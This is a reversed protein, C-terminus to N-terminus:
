VEPLEVELQEKLQAIEQQYNLERRDSEEQSALLEEMNQRLEEEQARMAESNEKLETVLQNTRENTRTNSISSALTEALRELFELQFEEFNYFSAIELVGLIQENYRLPLVLAATPNASGLGSTINIFEQPIDTLYIRAGEVWAQGILGENPLVRDNLHRNRNWAYCGVMEMSPENEKSEDLIYLAAQNANLQKVLLSLVESALKKSDSSGRLLEVFQSYAENGWNRREERGALSQLSDRMQILANGLVDQESLVQFEAALEGEGISEAFRTTQQLGETLVGISHAMDNVERVRYFPLEKPLEGRSMRNIIERLNSIPRVLRRFLVLSLLLSAFFTVGLVVLLGSRVNTVTEAHNEDISNQISTLNLDQEIRAMSNLLTGQLGAENYTGLLTDLAVLLGLNERYESLVSGVMGAEGESLYESSVRSFQEIQQQAFGVIYQDGTLLYNQSELQLETLLEEKGQFDFQRMFILAGEFDGLVGYGPIGRTKIGKLFRQFENDMVTIDEDLQDLAGFDTHEQDVLAKRTQASIDHYKDICHRYRHLILSSDSSHYLEQQQGILMFEKTVNVLDKAERQLSRFDDRLGGINLGKVQTYTIYETLGISLFLLSFILLILSRVSIHKGKALKKPAETEPM